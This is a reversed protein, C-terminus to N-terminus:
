FARTSLSKQFNVNAYDNLCHWRQSRRTKSGAFVKRGDFVLQFAPKSEKSGPWALLGNLQRVGLGFHNKAGTVYRRWCFGGNADATRTIPLTLLPASSLAYKGELVFDTNKMGDGNKERFTDPRFAGLSRNESDFGKSPGGNNQISVLLKSAMGFDYSAGLATGKM